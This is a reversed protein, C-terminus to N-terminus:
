CSWVSFLVNPHYCNDCSHFFILIIKMFDSRLCSEVMDSSYSSRVSHDPTDAPWRPKRGKRANIICLLCSLQSSSYHSLIGHNAISRNISAGAELAASSEFCYKLSFAINISRSYLHVSGHCKSSNASTATAGGLADNQVDAHTLVTSATDDASVCHSGM